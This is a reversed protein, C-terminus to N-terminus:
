HDHIAKTIKPTKKKENYFTKLEGEIILTLKALYMLRLQCKNGKM